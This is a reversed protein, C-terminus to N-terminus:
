KNANKRRNYVLESIPIHRVILPTKCDDDVLFSQSWTDSSSPGLEKHQLKLQITYM